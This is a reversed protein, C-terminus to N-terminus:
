LRPDEGPPCDVWLSNTCTNTTGGGVIGALDVQELRRLTEKALTLKQTTKKMAAGKRAHNSLRLM